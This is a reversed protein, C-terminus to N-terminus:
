CSTTPRPPRASRRPTSKPTTSWDATPCIGCARFGNTAATTTGSTLTSWSPRRQGRMICWAFYIRTDEDSTGDGFAMCSGHTRLADDILGTASSWLERDLAAEHLSALIGDFAERESVAAGECTRTRGAWNGDAQDGLVRRKDASAGSCGRM